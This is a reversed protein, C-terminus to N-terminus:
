ASNGYSLRDLNPKLIFRAEPLLVTKDPLPSELPCPGTLGGVLTILVGIQEAGDARGACLSRGHHHWLGIGPRHLGMEVLDAAGNRAM